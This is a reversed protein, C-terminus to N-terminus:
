ANEAGILSRAVALAAKHREAQRGGLERGRAAAMIVASLALRGRMTGEPGEGTGLARILDDLRQQLTRAAALGRLAHENLQACVLSAGNEGRVLADFREIARMRTAASPPHARASEIIVDLAPLLEEYSSTLLEEKNAFHHLVAQRTVGAQRAVQTLSTLEYGQETFLELAIARVRRRTDTRRRDAQEGM